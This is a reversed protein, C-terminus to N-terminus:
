IDKTQLFKWFDYKTAKAGSLHLRKPTNEHCGPGHVTKPVIHCGSFLMSDTGAHLIEFLNILGTIAWLQGVGINCLNQQVDAQLLSGVPDQSTIM